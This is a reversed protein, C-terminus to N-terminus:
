LLKYLLAIAFATLVFLMLALLFVGRAYQQQVKRLQQEIRIRRQSFSETVNEMM